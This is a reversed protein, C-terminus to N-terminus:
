ALMEPTVTNKAVQGFRDSYTISSVQRAAIWGGRAAFADRAALTPHQEVTVGAHEKIDVHHRHGTHIYRKSTDGWVRPYQAAFLLPLAANKALHGHHWGLMTNGHQYVYYPLESDIVQLRSEKEYLAKFMARLWVSSSIDHNGEALLLVVKEHRQLALNIVTRLIRIAVGVMKPMRGDADLAHGSSPTVASLASDYHLYDGLQAIVCTKAEPSCNVMQAFCGTLTQEALTLDWDGSQTEKDWALMGVHSDTLTYVNCLNGFTELPPSAPSLRPLDEAMADAAALMAQHQQERDSTTKVWQGALEGQNNFYQSVGSIKYGAPVPKRYDHETALQKAARIRLRAMARSINRSNCGLAKAAKDVSGHKDIAEIFEIERLTAFQILHDHKTM